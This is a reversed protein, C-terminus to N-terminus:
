LFCRNKKAVERGLVARTCLALLCSGGRQFAVKKAADAGDKKGDLSLKQMDAHLEAGQANAATASGYVM